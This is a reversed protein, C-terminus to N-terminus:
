RPGDRLVHLEVEAGTAIGTLVSGNALSILTPGAKAALEYGAAETAAPKVTGGEEGGGSLVGVELFVPHAEAVNRLLVAGPGQAIVVAETTPVKVRM